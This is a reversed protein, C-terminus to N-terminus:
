SRSPLSEARVAAAEGLGQVRGAYALGPLQLSAESLCSEVPSGGQSLEEQSENQWTDHSAVFLPGWAPPIRGSM